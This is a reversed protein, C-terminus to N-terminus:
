LERVRCCYADLGAVAAGPGDRKVPFFENGPAPRVATIAAFAAVNIDFRVDLQV